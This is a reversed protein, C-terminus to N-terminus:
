STSTMIFSPNSFTGSAMAAYSYQQFSQIHASNLSDLLGRPTSSMHRNVRLFRRKRLTILEHTHHEVFIHVRWNTSGTDIEFTIQAKCSERINHSKRTIKHCEILDTEMKKM